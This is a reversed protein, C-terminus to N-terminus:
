DGADGGLLRRVSRGLDELGGLVGQSATSGTGGRGKGREGSRGAEAASPARGGPCQWVVKWAGQLRLECGPEPAPALQFARVQDGHRVVALGERALLTLGEAFRRADGLLQQAGAGAAATARGTAEGARGPPLSATGDARGGEAGGPQKSAPPTAGSAGRGGSAEARAAPPATLRSGKGGSGEPGPQHSAQGTAKGPKEEGGRSVPKGLIQGGVTRQVDLGRSLLQQVLGSWGQELELGPLQRAAASRAQRLGVSEARDSAAVGPDPAQVLMVPVEPAGQGLLGELKEAGSRVKAEVAQVPQGARAPAVGVLVPTPASAGAPAGARQAARLEASAAEALVQDVPKGRWAVGQLLEQAGPSFARADIVRGNRDTTFEMGGHWDLSVYAWAAPRAWPALVALAILLVAAVAAAVPWALRRWSRHEPSGELALEDGVAWERGRPLRLRRFEGEDTLVLAWGGERELIVARAAGTRKASMTSM